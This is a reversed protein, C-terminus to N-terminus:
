RPFRINKTEANTQQKTLGDLTIHNINEMKGKLKTASSGAPPNTCNNHTEGNGRESAPRGKRARDSNTLAQM